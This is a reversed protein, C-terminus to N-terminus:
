IFEAVMTKITKLDSYHHTDGPIETSINNKVHRETLYLDLSQFSMMPDSTQQIFLTPISYNEFWKDSASVNQKGWSIPVGLFICKPPKLLNDHVGKVTLITGISKAFIIYPDFGSAFEAVKNLEYAFDIIPNNEDWHKYYHIHTKEFLDKLVAESEEIWSKNQISNGSLLLLNMFSNYCLYYILPRFYTNTNGVM